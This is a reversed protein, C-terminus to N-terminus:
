DKNLIYLVRHAYESLNNKETKATHIVKYTKLSSLIDDLMGTTENHKVSGEIILTKPAHRDLFKFLTETLTVSELRNGIIHGGGHGFVCLIDINKGQMYDFMEVDTKLQYDIRPNNQYYTSLVDNAYYNNFTDPIHNIFRATGADLDLIDKGTVDVHKAVIKFREDLIETQLYEWAM